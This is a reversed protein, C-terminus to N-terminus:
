KDSKKEDPKKEDPRKEQPKKEDPKKEDLRKEDGEKKPTPVDKTTPAKTDMRPGTNTSKTNSTPNPCGTIMTLLGGVICLALLKKMPVEDKKRYLEPLAFVGTV